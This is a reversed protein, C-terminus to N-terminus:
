ENPWLFLEELVREPDGLNFEIIKRLHTFTDVDTESFRFGIRDKFTHKKEAKFYLEIDSSPFVIKIHCTEGDAIFIKQNTRVLAGKLSIDLLNAECSANESEIQCIGEFSIRSFKRREVAM